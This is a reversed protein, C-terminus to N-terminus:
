YKKREKTEGVSRLSVYAPFQFRNMKKLINTITLSVFDVAERIEKKVRMVKGMKNILDLKNMITKEKNLTNFMADM